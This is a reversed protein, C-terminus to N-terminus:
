CLQAPSYIKKGDARTVRLVVERVWPFFPILFTINFLSHLGVPTHFSLYDYHCIYGRCSSWKRGPRAGRKWSELQNQNRPQTSSQCPPYITTPQHQTQTCRKASTRGSPSTSGTWWTTLCWTQLRRPPPCPATPNTRWWRTKRNFRFFKNCQLIYKGRPDRSWNITPPPFDTPFLRPVLLWNIEKMNKFHCAVLTTTLSTRKM